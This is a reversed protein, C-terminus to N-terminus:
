GFANIKGASPFYLGDMIKLLTSKGSGNVGLIVVNEGPMVTFNIEQLGTLGDPYTYSMDSVTFVPTNM